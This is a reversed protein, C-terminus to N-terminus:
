MVMISCEFPVTFMGSYGTAANYFTDGSYDYQILYPHNQTLGTYLLEASHGGQTVPLIQSTVIANTLGDLLSMTFSYGYPHSDASVVQVSIDCLGAALLQGSLGATYTTTAYPYMFSFALLPNTKTISVNVSGDLSWHDVYGAADQVQLTIYGNNLSGSPTLTNNGTGSVVYGFATGPTTNYWATLPGPIWEDYVSWTYPSTGGSVTLTGGTIGSVVDYTISNSTILPKSPVTTLANTITTGGALPRYVLSSIGNAVVYIDYVGNLVIPNGKDTTLPIKFDTTQQVGPQISMSKAGTSTLRYNSGQAYFTPYKGSGDATQRVFKVIPFCSLDNYEDNLNAAQTVGCLQTGSLSYIGGPVMTTASVSTITPRVAAPPTLAPDPQFVYYGNTNFVEGSPLLTGMALYESAISYSNAAMDYIYDFCWIRNADPLMCIAEDSPGRGPASGPQRPSQAVGASWTDTVPDYIASHVAYVFVKGNPLAVSAGFEHNESSGTVYDALQVPCGTKQVVVWDLNGLSSGPPYWRFTYETTGWGVFLMFSGDQLLTHTAEGDGPGMYTKFTKNYPNVIWHECNILPNVGNASVWVTGDSLLCSPADAIFSGGGFTYSAGSSYSNAPITWENAVYHPNGLETWNDAVVNYVQFSSPPMIGGPGGAGIFYDAGFGGGEGYENGFLIVNGDALPYNTGVWSGYPRTQFTFTNGPAMTASCRLLRGNTYSGYADPFYRFFAGASLGAGYGGASLLISGDSLLQVVTGFVQKSWTSGSASALATNAATDAM